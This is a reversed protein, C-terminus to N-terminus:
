PLLFRAGEVARLTSDVAQHGEGPIKGAVGIRDFSRFAQDELVTKLVTQIDGRHELYRGSEIRGDAIRVCGIYLSGIDIGVRVM